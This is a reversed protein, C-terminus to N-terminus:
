ADANPKERLAALEDVANRLAVTTTFHRAECVYVLKEVHELEDDVAISRRDNLWALAIEKEAGFVIADYPVQHSALWAHTEWELQPFRKIDRSTAFLIPIGLDRARVIETKTAEVIPVHLFGNLRYYIRKLGEYERQGQQQKYAQLSEYDLGTVQKAFRLLATDRACLVGDLDCILIPGLTGAKSQEKMVELPVRKEVVTSKRAFGEYFEVPSVGHLLMLNILFKFVDVAEQVIDGKQAIEGRQHIKWDGCRVLEDVEGHLHTCLAGHLRNVEALDIPVTIGYRVLERNWHATQRAWMDSFLGSVTGTSEVIKVEHATSPKVNMGETGM